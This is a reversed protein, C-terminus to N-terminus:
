VLSDQLRLRSKVNKTRARRLQNSIVWFLACSEYKCFVVAIEMILPIQTRTSKEESTIYVIEHFVPLENPFKTEAGPWYIWCPCTEARVSEDVLKYHKTSSIVWPLSSKDTWIQWCFYAQTSSLNCSCKFCCCVYFSNNSPCLIAWGQRSFSKFQIFQLVFRKKKGVM